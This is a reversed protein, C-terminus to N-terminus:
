GVVACRRPTYVRTRYTKYGPTGRVGDAANVVLVQKSTIETVHGRRLYLESKRRVPWVIHSGGVIPTGVYDRLTNTNDLTRPM